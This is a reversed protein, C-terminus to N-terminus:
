KQNIEPPCNEALFQTLDLEETASLFAALDRILVVGTPHLVVGEYSSTQDLELPVPLVQEDDIQEAQQVRSVRLVARTQGAAVVIMHDSLRVPQSTLRLKKRIDIVPLPEGRLVILGEVFEPSDPVHRIAVARVIETVNEIHIAFGYDDLAFLLYEGSYHSPTTNGDTTM